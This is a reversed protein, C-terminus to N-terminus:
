NHRKSKLFIAWLVTIVAIGALIKRNKGAMSKQWGGKLNGGKRKSQGTRNEEHEDTANVEKLDTRQEAKLSEELSPAEVQDHLWFYQEGTDTKNGARDQAVVRIRQWKDAKKLLIVQEEQNNKQIEEGNLWVTVEQLELNDRCELHVTREKERYIGNEEMGGLLIEPGSRDVAFEIKQKRMRNDSTNEARDESSCIVYYMGEEEFCGASVSYCYEKWSQDDGSKKVTYDRDKVLIRTEGEHGLLIESETLYDVNVEYIKVDTSDTLYYGGIRDQTQQDLYYVSGFRNVSFRIESSRSNGALDQVEARLTYVDDWSRDEPLNKMRLQVIGDTSKLKKWQVPRKGGQFGTLVLSIQTANLNTDRIICVPEIRNRNASGSVINEFRIEPDTHDMVIEGTCQFRVNGVQDELRSWVRCTGERNLVLEKGENWKDAHLSYLEEGTLQKEEDYAAFLEAKKVGSGNDSIHICSVTTECNRYNSEGSAIEKGDLAWGAEPASGDVFWTISRVQSEALIEGQSNKETLTFEKTGDRHIQGIQEGDSFGKGAMPEVALTEGQRIWLKGDVGQWFAKEDSCQIKYDLTGVVPTASLIVDGGSVNHKEEINFTYNTTPNGSITGDKKRKPVIANVYRITKGNQYMPSTKQLVSENIELEPFIFGDPVRGNRCDEELFGSVRIHEEQEFVLNSIQNESYYPKSANSITIQLPRPMITVTLPEREEKEIVYAESGAGELTVVTEVPWIGADKEKARGTISLTMDEPLGTVEAEVEVDTTGDYYRNEERLHIDSLWIKKEPNESKMEKQYNKGTQHGNEYTGTGENKKDESADKWESNDGTSDTWGAEWGEKNSGAESESDGPWQSWGAEEREENKRDNRETEKVSSDTEWWEDYDYEEEEQRSDEPEQEQWEVEESWGPWIMQTTEMGDAVIGLAAWMGFAALTELKKM